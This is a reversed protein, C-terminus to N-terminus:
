SLSGVFHICGIRNMIGPYTSLADTMAIAGEKVVSRIPGEMKGTTREELVTMWCRTWDRNVCGLVWNGELHGEKWKIYTEDMEVIDGNGFVPTNQENYQHM